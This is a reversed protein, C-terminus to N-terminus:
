ASYINLTLFFCICWIIGRHNMDVYGLIAPSNKPSPYAYRTGGNYVTSQQQQQQQEQTSFTQFSVPSTVPTTREEGNLMRELNRPRSNEQLTSREFSGGNRSRDVNRVRDFTSSHSRDLTRSEAALGIHFDRNSNLTGFRPTSVRSGLMSLTRLSVSRFCLHKNLLILSKHQWLTLAYNILPV